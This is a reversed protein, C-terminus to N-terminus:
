NPVESEISHRTAADLHAMAIERWPKLVARADNRRGARALALALYGAITGQFPWTAPNEAFEALADSASNLSAVAAEANGTRLRLVGETASHIGAHMKPLNRQEVSALMEAARAPDGVRAHAFALDLLSTQSKGSRECATEAMALWQDDQGAAAYLSSVRSEYVGNSYSPESRTSAVLALAGDIDGRRAHVTAERFLLDIGLKPNQTPAPTARIAAIQSLMEPLDAFASAKLLQQYRDVRGIGTRVRWIWWGLLVLPLLTVIINHRWVGIAFVIAIIALMLANARLARRWVAGSGSTRKMEVEARIETSTRPRRGDPRQSRLKASLEDDHFEIDTYGERELMMRIHEVSTSERAFTSRRGQADTATVIYDHM